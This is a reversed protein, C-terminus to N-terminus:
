SWVAKAKTRDGKRENVYDNTQDKRTMKDKSRGDMWVYMCGYICGYMCRGNKEKNWGDM